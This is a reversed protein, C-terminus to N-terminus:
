KKYWRRHKEDYKLGANKMLRTAINKSKFNLFRMCESNTIWPNVLLLYDELTKKHATPSKHHCKNCQWNSHTREMGLWGCAPCQVGPLLDSGKISHKTMIDIDFERCERLITYGIKQHQVPTNSSLSKEHNMLKMPTSEGRVVVKAIAEKDGVVELITAPDSIAIFHYIPISPLGREQLWNQLKIQQIEVQTIPHNFGTQIKGDDRIFQNLVTDFIIKGSYNKVEILYIAQPSLILNDIQVSQGGIPLCVDQLITHKDALLSLYYDVKLEGKYGKLYKASEYQIEQLRPFNRRLRPAIAEYKQLVLPKPRKRIIM